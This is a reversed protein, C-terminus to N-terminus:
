SRAETADLEAVLDHDLVGTLGCRSCTVTNSAYGDAEFVSGCTAPDACRKVADAVAATGTVDFATTVHPPM